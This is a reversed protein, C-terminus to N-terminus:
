LVEDRDRTRLEDYSVTKIAYGEERNSVPRDDTGLYTTVTENGQADYEKNIAAVGDKLAILKGDVDRYETRIEQRNNFERIQKHFGGKNVIPKGDTGYYAVETINGESNHSCRGGFRGM